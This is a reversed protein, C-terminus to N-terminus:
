VTQMEVVTLKFCSKIDINYILMPILANTATYIITVKIAQNILLSYTSLVIKHIHGINITESYVQDKLVAM